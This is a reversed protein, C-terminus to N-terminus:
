RTGGYIPKYTHPRFHWLVACLIPIPFGKTPIGGAVVSRDAVNILRVKQEGSYYYRQDLAVEWVGEELHAVYRRGTDGEGFYQFPKELHLILRGDTTTTTTM